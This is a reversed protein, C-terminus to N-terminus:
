KCMQIIKTTQYMKKFYINTVEFVRICSVCVKADGSNLDTIGPIGDKWNVNDSTFVCRLYTTLIAIDQVNTIRGGYIAKECLGHIYAWRTSSHEISKFCFTVQIFFILKM